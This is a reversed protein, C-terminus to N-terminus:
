IENYFTVKFFFAISIRSFMATNCYTPNISTRQQQVHLHDPLYMVLQQHNVLMLTLAARNLTMQQKMTKPVHGFYVKGLVDLPTNFHKWHQIHCKLARLARLFSIFM